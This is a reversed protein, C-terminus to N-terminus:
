GAGGTRRRSPPDRFGDLLALLGGDRGRRQLLLRRVVLLEGLTERDVPDIDLADAFEIRTGFGRAGGLLAEGIREVGSTGLEDGAFAVVAIVVVARQEPSRIRQRERPLVDRM